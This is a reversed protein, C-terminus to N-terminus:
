RRLGLASRLAALEARGTYLRGDVFLTPTGRVGDAGGAAYDAEVAPRLAQAPEGVAGDVGLEAAYRALDADTLRDQHAFLLDHMSWFRDGAAEAALAATLAFPHKQFLPFHRFILRVRDDAADVLRRLVPAAAGCYPCEFDGYEVVTIPADVPGYCHRDLNVTETAAGRQTM